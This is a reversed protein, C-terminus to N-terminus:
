PEPQCVPCYYTGRGRLVIRKVQTGCVPCQKGVGHAVNFEDHATGLEGDPRIYNRVSAGHLTLAKFLM